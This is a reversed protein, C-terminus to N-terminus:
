PRKFQLSVLAPSFESQELHDALERLGAVVSAKVAAMDRAEEPLIGLEQVVTRAGWYTCGRIRDPSKPQTAARRASAALVSGAIVARRSPATM